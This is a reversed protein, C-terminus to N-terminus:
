LIARTRPFSKWTPHTIRQLIKSVGVGFDRFIKGPQLDVKLTKSIPFSLAAVSILSKPRFTSLTRPPSLPRLTLM